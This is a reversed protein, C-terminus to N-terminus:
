GAHVLREVANHRHARWMYQGFSILALLVSLWLLGKWLWTADEVTLPAIAFAVAFQQTLTKVKAVKSAPVSIGKAGVVVRYLSMALERAFIIAVPLWWFVGIDILTMMAVLVLFKDALPDVFAGFNTSGHRRALYGDIGDSACLFFWVVVAVWAGKGDDPIVLFMVPAIFMRAITVLNAWTAVATPDVPM